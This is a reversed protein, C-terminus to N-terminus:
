RGLYNYLIGQWEQDRIKQLLVRNIMKLLPSNNQLAIGYNEQSYTHPLVELKGLFQQTIQYRLAPADYVFAKIENQNLAELGETVSSYSKFSIFNNKLFTESTTDPLTGVYGKKLDELGRISPVLQNVTLMSAITATFVSVLIVSVFMWLLAVLRGALTGPNKDGYGVTTMTVASFWFGSAIGEATTGGFHEPNHKRELRWTILGVILLLVTIGLVIKLMTWSFIKKILIMALNSDHATVAIGLGTTYFPYTFDFQDLRDPTITLNAVVADLSGDAIGVLLDHQNLERWEYTLHLEAAIKRWLDISIGIWQGDVDKMAFPPTEKTGVVLKRQLPSTEPANEGHVALTAGLIASLTWVALFVNLFRCRRISFFRRELM